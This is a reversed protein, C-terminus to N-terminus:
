ENDLDELVGNFQPVGGYRGELYNREYAENNRPRNTSKFDYLSFYESGGGRLKEAIYIQDRRLLDPTLLNTDHSVFVLQAGKENASPSQFLEILKRTLLPHLSSEFEDIFVVSGSDLAKLLPGLLAFYRQTGNSEDGLEFRTMEDSDIMKHQTYVQQRNLEHSSVYKFEAQMKTFLSDISNDIESSGSAIPFSLLKSISSDKEEIQIAEIQLDADQMLSLIKLKTEDDKQCERSTGFALMESTLSFDLIQIKKRFWNFVPNLLKLNDRIATSLALSNDRTREELVDKHQRLPEGFKWTTEKSRADCSRDFWLAKDGKKSVSFLAESHIRESDAAFAYQYNVGEAIFTIEFRCPNNLTTKSLKFPEAGAIEDGLTMRTASTLILERMFSMAKVLNSKGSANAGFIAATKLLDFGNCHILSGPHWKDKSAVLSFTQEEYISRYNAIKLQVLM